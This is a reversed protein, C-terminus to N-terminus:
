TNIIDYKLLSRIYDDYIKIVLIRLYIKIVFIKTYLNQNVYNKYIFKTVSM